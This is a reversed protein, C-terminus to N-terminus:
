VRSGTHSVQVSTAQMTKKNLNIKTVSKGTILHFNPRKGAIPRYYAASASSRSQNKAALSVPGYFAGTADGANPQPNSAVGISNWGRFFHATFSPFGSKAIIEGVSM